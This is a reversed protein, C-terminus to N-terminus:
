AAFRGRNLLAAIDAETQEYAGANTTLSAGIMTAEQALEVLRSSWARQALQIAAGIDLGGPVGLALAAQVNGALQDVSQGATAATQAFGHLAQGDVQYGGGGAIRQFM